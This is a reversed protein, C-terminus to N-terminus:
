SRRAPPSDTNNNLLPLFTGFPALKTPKTLEM